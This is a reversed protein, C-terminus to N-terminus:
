SSQAEPLDEGAADEDGNWVRLDTLEVEARLEGIGVRDYWGHRRSVIRRRSGPMMPGRWGDEATFPTAAYETLEAVVRDREDLVTIRLALLTIMEDGANAVEVRTRLVPRYDDVIEVLRVDVDVKGVYGPARRDDLADSIIPPLSEIFEPVNDVVGGALSIFKESQSGAFHMGYIVVVTGSILLTVIIASIGIAVTSFFGHKKNYTIHQYDSM